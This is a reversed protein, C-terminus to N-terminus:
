YSRGIDYWKKKPTGYKEYIGMNYNEDKVVSPNHEGMWFPNKKEELRKIKFDKYNDKFSLWFKGWPSAQAYQAEEPTSQRIETNYPMTYDTIMGLESISPGGQYPQAIDSTELFPVVGAVAVPALADVITPGSYPNIPKPVFGEDGYQVKWDFNSVTQWFPRESIKRYFYSFPSIKDATEMATSFEEVDLELSDVDYDKGLVGKSITYLEDQLRPGILSRSGYTAAVGLAVIEFYDLLAIGTGVKGKYQITRAIKENLLGKARGRRTLYELELYNGEAVAKRIADLSEQETMPIADQVQSIVMDTADNIATVDDIYSGAELIKQTTKKDFITNNVLDGLEGTLGLAAREVANFGKDYLLRNEFAEDLVQQDSVLNLDEYKTLPPTDKGPIVTQFQGITEGSDLKVIPVHKGIGAYDNPDFLTIWSALRENETLTDKMSLFPQNIYGEIGGARLFKNLVLEPEKNPSILKALKITNSNLIEPTHFQTQGGFFSNGQIQYYNGEVRNILNAEELYDLLKYRPLNFAGAASSIDFNTLWGGSNLQSLTVINKTNVEIEFYNDTALPNVKEGTMQYFTNDDKLHEELAFTISGGSNRKTFLDEVLDLYEVDGQVNAIPKRGKNYGARIDEPNLPVGENNRYYVPIRLLNDAHQNGLIEQLLRNHQYGATTSDPMEQIVKDTNVQYRYARLIRERIYALRKSQNANRPSNINEDYIFGVDYYADIKVGDEGILELKSASPINDEVMYFKKVLVNYENTEYRYLIDERDILEGSVYKPLRSHGLAIDAMHEISTIKEGIIDTSLKNFDISNLIQRGTLEEIDILNRVQKVVSELQQVYLSNLDSDPRNAVEIKLERLVDELYYANGPYDKIVTDGLRNFYNGIMNKVANNKDFYIIDEEKIIKHTKTTAGRTDKLERVEYKLTEPELFLLEEELRGRTNPGGKITIPGESSLINTPQRDGRGTQHHYVVKIGADKLKDVWWSLPKKYGISHHIFRQFDNYSRGRTTALFEQILPNIQQWMSASMDANISDLLSETLQSSMPQHYNLINANAIGSGYLDVQYVYTTRGSLNEGGFGRYDQTYNASTAFYTNSGHGALRGGGDKDWEPTRFGLAANIPTSAHYVNLDGMSIDLTPHADVTINQSELYDLNILYRRIINNFKRKAEYAKGEFGDETAFRYDDIYKQISENDGTGLLSELLEKRFEPEYLKKFAEVDNDNVNFYWQHTDLFSDPESLNYPSEQRGFSFLLDNAEKETLTVNNILNRDELRRELVKKLKEFDNYKESSTDVNAAEMELLTESLFSVGSETSIMWSWISKKDFAELLKELQRTNIIKKYDEKSMEDKVVRFATSMEWLNLEQFNVDDIGINEVYSNILLRENKDLREENMLEIYKNKQEPTLEIYLQVLRAYEDMYSQIPGDANVSYLSMWDKEFAKLDRGFYYHGQGVPRGGNKIMGQEVWENAPQTIIHMNEKEAFMTIIDAMMLSTGLQGQKEPKIMNLDIYIIKDNWITWKVTPGHPNSSAFTTTDTPRNAIFEDYKNTIFYFFDQARQQLKKDKSGTFGIEVREYIPRPINQVEAYQKFIDEDSLIGDWKTFLELEQYNVDDPGVGAAKASEEQQAKWDGIKGGKLVEELELIRRSIQELYLEYAKIKNLEAALLANQEKNKPSPGIDNMIKNRIEDMKREINKAKEEILLIEEAAKKAEPTDVAEPRVQKFPVVNSSEPVDSQRTYFEEMGAQESAASTELRNIEEQLFRVNDEHFRLEDLALDKERDDLDKFEESSIYDKLRQVEELEKQLKRRDEEM